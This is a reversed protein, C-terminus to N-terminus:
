AALVEASNLSNTEIKCIQSSVILNPSNKSIEEAISLDDLDPITKIGFGFSGGNSALDNRHSWQWCQGLGRQFAQANFDRRGDQFSVVVCASCRLNRCTTHDSDLPTHIPFNSIASGIDTIFRRAFLYSKSSIAWIIPM